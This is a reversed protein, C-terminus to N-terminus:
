RLNCSFSHDFIQFLIERTGCLFSTLFLLSCLTYSFKLEKVEKPHKTQNVNDFITKYKKEKSNYSSLDDDAIASNTQSSVATYESPDAM